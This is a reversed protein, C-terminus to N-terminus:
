LKKRVAEIALSLNDHQTDYVDRVEVYDESYHEYTGDILAFDKYKYVVSVKSSFDKDFEIECDLSLKYLEDYMSGLADYDITNPSYNLDNEYCFERTYYHNEIVKDILDKILKLTKFTSKLIEKEDQKRKINKAQNGSYWAAWISACAAIVSVFLTLKEYNGM